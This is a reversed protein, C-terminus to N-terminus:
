AAFRKFDNVAMRATYSHGAVLGTPRSVFQHRQGLEHLAEPSNTAYSAYRGSLDNGRADRSPTVPISLTGAEIVATYIM